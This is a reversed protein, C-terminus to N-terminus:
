WIITEECNIFQICGGYDIMQLAPRRVRENSRPFQVTSSEYAGGPPLIAVRRHTAVVRVLCWSRSAFTEVVAWSGVLWFFFTLILTSSALLFDAVAVGAEGESLSM